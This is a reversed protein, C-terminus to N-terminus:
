ASESGGSAAPVPPLADDTMACCTSTAASLYPRSLSFSMQSSLSQPKMLAPVAAVVSAHRLLMPASPELLRAEPEEPRRAIQLRDHTAIPKLMQRATAGGKEVLQEGVNSGSSQM